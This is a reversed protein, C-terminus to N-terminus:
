RRRQWQAYRHRIYDNGENGSITDDGDGGNLFDSGLRGEITDNGAGGLITDNGDLADNVATELLAPNGGYLKDDGNGGEIRDAGDGGWIQDNDDGGYLFDDGADGRLDDYGAEGLLTDSGTGGSLFDYGNGGLLYDNGDDGGLSDNGDGSSLYDNGTGGNLFDVHVSGILTDDGGYGYINNINELGVPTVTTALNTANVTDAYATGLFEFREIATVNGLINTGIVYPTADTQNWTINVGGSTLATYDFYAYDYDNGGDITDTVSTSNFRDNGARGLLTNTGGGGNLVDNGSGAVIVDNGADGFFTDGITDQLQTVTGGTFGTLIGFAANATDNGTTGTFTALTGPYTTLRDADLLSLGENLEWTGSAGVPGITAGITAGTLQSFQDVFEQDAGVECSYLAIEAVGWEQLLGSRAKLMALDISKRGIQISGPQGHAVIALKTAGTKSLLNTILDIADDTPSITYGISGPLLANYLLELDTVRADFLVLTTTIAPAIPSITNYSM